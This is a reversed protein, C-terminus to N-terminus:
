PECLHLTSLCVSKTIRKKNRLLSGLSVAYIKIARVIITLDVSLFSGTNHLIYGPKSPIWSRINQILGISSAYRRGSQM